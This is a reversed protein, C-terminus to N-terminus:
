KKKNWGRSTQGAAQNERNARITPMNSSLANWKDVNINKHRGKEIELKHDSCRFKCIKVYHFDNLNELYPCTWALITSKSM